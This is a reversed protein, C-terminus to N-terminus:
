KLHLYIPKKGEKVVVTDPYLFVDKEEFNLYHTDFRFEFVVEDNLIFVARRPSGWWVDLRPLNADFGLKENLAEISENADAQLFARDWEFDFLTNLEIESDQSASIAEYYELSQGHTRNPENNFSSFLIVLFIIYAVVPVCALLVAIGATKYAKKVEGDM